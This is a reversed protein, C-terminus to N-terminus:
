REAAERLVQALRDIQHKSNLETVCFLLCDKLQPATRGLDYGGIIKQRRLSDNVLEPAIPCRVVFENFFPASGFALSYGPIGAIQKAAYHAKHYCLEAVKKLGNKGMTALYVCAALAVLGENSCINSTAKERRIHQERTQLTLVFGRQGRNDVTQGVLRGAMRRVYQERCAFVGLYPGGFDMPWGLSQGEATVIDAGYDAPPKFLGLSIPNVSVVFLAGAAHAADAIPQLNQLRGLFDPNQAIVCATDQDILQTLRDWGTTIDEDGVIQIDLGQTYTRLVVRYEPHLAPSVVIKKRGRTANHAMLAAEAIATAGDYHSANAVDMGTLACIMSQYEFIAQLTGQSIEPQYPTYATYFEGRGIVHGVVAPIFHHYSGAGLFCSYTSADANHSNLSELEAMIEAESIPAPLNLRPYRVAAPVDQFLDDMGRVGIAQLMKARDAPTNPVFSM